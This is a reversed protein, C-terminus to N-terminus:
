LVGFLDIFVMNNAQTCVKNSFLLSSLLFSEKREKREEGTVSTQACVVDNYASTRHEDMIKGTQKAAESLGGFLSRAFDVKMWAIM